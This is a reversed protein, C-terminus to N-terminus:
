RVSMSRPHSFDLHQGNNAKVDKLDSHSVNGSFTAIRNYSLNDWDSLTVSTSSSNKIYVNKNYMFSPLSYGSRKGRPLCYEKQTDISVICGLEQNSKVVAMSRPHSFDLTQGNKAVVSKLQSNEVTGAFSALRNYSLNDWDSLIVETGEQANIYVQKNYISAPLSYGSREGVSLCYEEGTAINVICGKPEEKTTITSTKLDEKPEDLTRSTLLDGDCYLEASYPKLASEINVHFKNMYGNDLRRAYLNFVKTGGKQTYVNLKCSSNSLADNYVAGFSGNLAPYIYSNLEKQPDYFGVLTTVAAGQKYPKQEKTISSAGRLDDKLLNKWSVMKKLNKDWKKFGSSSEPSFVVKNEFFQQIKNLEYPTHLTYRNYDNNLPWGGSMAGSGFRRGAFPSVCQENYCAEQDTIHKEFNPLFYNNHSDWGWTSNVQHAPRNISGAFGGPFHGLGFNHGLEHSFENGESSYLTVMGNGGSLGHVQIGNAYNGIANHATVQASSYPHWSESVGGSSSIGYNANNIGHSILGKAIQHRMNGSYVGGESPDFDTLFQGNPLMVETLHQPEYKSVTLHSIPLQQFYERHLEPNNQFTFQERPPTLLGLDITHIILENPAGVEIEDLEGVKNGDTFSFTLGPKINNAPIISSYTNPRYNIKNYEVDVNSYWIGEINQLTFEAGRTINLSKNSYHINSSYSANATFTVFKGHYAKGAPLYFNGSWNGDSTKINLTNYNSFLNAFYSGSTDNAFNLLTKNDSITKGFTSPKIIPTTFNTVGAVKPLESPPNMKGQYIIKGQADKATIVVDNQLSVKPQLLVMLKRDSVLHPQVDNLIQHKSPMISNQVFSVSASLDGTTDSEADNQNFYLVNSAAESAFASACLICGILVAINKERM